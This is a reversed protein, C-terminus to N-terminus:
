LSILDAVSLSPFTGALAVVLEEGVLEHSLDVVKSSSLSSGFTAQEQGPRLTNLDIGSLTFFLFIPAVPLAGKVLERSIGWLSSSCIESAALEHCLELIQSLSKWFSLVGFLSFFTCHPALALDHEVEDQFM